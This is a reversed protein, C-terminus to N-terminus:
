VIINYLGLCFGLRLWPKQQPKEKPKYVTYVSPVWYTTYVYICYLRTYFGRSAQLKRIKKPLSINLVPKHATSCGLSWWLIVDQVCIHVCRGCKRHLTYLQPKYELAAQSCSTWGFLAAKICSKVTDSLPVCTISLLGKLPLLSIDYWLDSWWTPYNCSIKRVWHPCFLRKGSWM